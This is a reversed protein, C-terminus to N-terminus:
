DNGQGKGRVGFLALRQGVLAYGLDKAIRALLADVEADAFEIVAGSEVDILHHHQEARAEEYHARGDGLDLREVIGADEFMRMARYVTALSIAEDRASARRYVEEVDPHDESESLVRAIVRRQDTMKLGKEACLREVRSPEIKPQIQPV